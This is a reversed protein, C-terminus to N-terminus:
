PELIGVMKHSTGILRPGAGCLNAGRIEIRTKRMVEILSLYTSRAGEGGGAGM